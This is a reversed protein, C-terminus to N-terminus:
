SVEHKVMYDHIVFGLSTDGRQHEAVWLAKNGKPQRWDDRWHGRVQHARRRLDTLAKQAIKRTEARKPIELTIVSHELFRRYNGRAMFGRSREVKREGVLPIRNLTSLFTWISQMKGILAHQAVVMIESDIEHPPTDLEGAMNRFGVNGRLYGRCMLAAESATVGLEDLPAITQMPWWPLPGDETDWMLVIPNSSSVGAENRTWVKACFATEVSAHQWCLFGELCRYPEGPKVDGSSLVSGEFKEENVIEQLRMAMADYQYEVWTVKHPLRCFHRVSDIGRHAHKLRRQLKIHTNRGAFTWYNLDALFRSMSEDLVFRRANMLM